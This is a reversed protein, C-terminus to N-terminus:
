GGRKRQAARARKQGAAQAKEAAKQQDLLRQKSMTVPIPLFNKGVQELRSGELPITKNHRLIPDGTDYRAVNDGFLAQVGRGIPSQNLAWYADAGLGPQGLTRKGTSDMPGTYAPRTNMRGKRLNIDGGAFAAAQILPNLTKGIERTSFIPPNTTSNFPNMGGASLWKSGGLPVYGRTWDPLGATASDQKTPDGGQGLQSLHMTWAVRLPHEVPLSFALKTVHRQWTYFPVIRRVVNRELPSMKSFDGMAKLAAQVAEEHGMGKSINIDYMMSRGLNDVFENAKYAAQIPRIEHGKVTLLASKESTSRALDSATGAGYLRPDYHIEGSTLEQKLKGLTPGIHTAIDTLSAGGAVHALMANGVVNGVQWMPSMALVSHKWVRTGTDYAALAKGPKNAQAVDQYAKAIHAPVFPTDANIGEQGMKQLPVLDRRAMEAAIDHGTHGLRSETDIALPNNPELGALQDGAISRFTTGHQQAIIDVAKNKASEAIAAINHRALGGFSQAVNGTKKQREVRTKSSVLNTPSKVTSGSPNEVGGALYQPEIGKAQLDSMSTAIDNHLATLASAVEPPHGEASLTQGLWAKAREGALLAPRYAGPAVSSPGHALSEPTAGTQKAVREVASPMPTTLVQEPSLPSKM